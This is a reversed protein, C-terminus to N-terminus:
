GTIRRGGAWVARVSWDGDLLVADAAYGPALRGLRQDLGLVRAPTATLATVAAVPDVGALEVANRLAVDQTLTSGALPGDGDLRPVGDRV